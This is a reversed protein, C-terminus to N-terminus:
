GIGYNKPLPEPLDLDPFRQVMNQHFLFDLCDNNDPAYGMVRKWISPHEMCFYIFAEKWRTRIGAYIKQYIETRIPRFYRMKGDPCPVFEDLFVRNRPFREEAIQKLERPFRLAGLSIWAVDEEDLTETIRQTMEEYKAQWDQVEIMPDLHIGIRYGKQAATQLAKLRDDFSAAKHEEAQIIDSPNMSCSIVVNRRELGPLHATNSTKTKLELLIPRGSVARILHDNWHTLPDLVLSDTLEGTGIRLLRNPRCKQLAEIEDPIKELNVFLTLMPFNIYSQLICYSCDLPCNMQLNLIWYNCCLYPVGTGPCPKLFSGLFQTIWLNRKGQSITFSKAKDMVTQRDSIEVVPIGSLKELVAQARPHARVEV